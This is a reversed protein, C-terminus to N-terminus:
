DFHQPLAKPWFEAMEVDGTAMIDDICLDRDGKKVYQCAKKAQKLLEAEEKKKGNNNLRRRRVLGPLPADEQPTAAFVTSLFCLLLLASRFTM